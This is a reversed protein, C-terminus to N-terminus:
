WLLFLLLSQHQLETKVHVVAQVAVEAAHNFASVVAQQDGPLNVFSVPQAKQAAEISHEPQKEFPKVFILSFLFIGILGGFLGMLMSGLLRKTKM